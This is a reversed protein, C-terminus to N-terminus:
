QQRLVCTSFLYLPSWKPKPSWKTKTESCHFKKGGFFEQVISWYLFCNQPNKKKKKKKKLFEKSLLLPGPPQALKRKSCSPARGYYKGLAKSAEQFVESFCCNLGPGWSPPLCLFILAWAKSDFEGPKFRTSSSILQTIQSLNNLYQSGWIWWRYFPSLFYLVAVVTSLRLVQLTSLVASLM